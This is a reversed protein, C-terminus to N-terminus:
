ALTRRRTFAHYGLLLLIAGLLSLIFGAPEGERYAFFVRGIMAGVFSGLIGVFMSVGWGGPEKGPVILRAILGVVLGFVLFLIFSM